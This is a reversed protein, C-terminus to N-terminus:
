EEKEVEIDFDKRDITKGDMDETVTIAKEISKSNLADLIKKKIKYDTGYVEYKLKLRQGDEANVTGSVTKGDLKYTYEAYEDATGLVIRICKKAPHNEVLDDKRKVYDDYKMKEQYVGDTVRRGTVYYGPTPAITVIVKQSGEVLEDQKLISKTDENRVTLVTHESSKAVTYKRVDVVGITIKIDKYWTKSTAIEDPEYIYVPDPNRSMDNEYRIESTTKGKKDTKDVKIRVAKGTPIARNSMTIMIGDQTGIKQDSIITQSNDIINYGSNRDKLDTIKWGGGYHSVGKKFEAAEFTFEMDEGVTRELVVSFEPKHSEDETFATDVSKGAITATQSQDSGVTYIEGSKYNNKWGEWAKIDMSIKTGSQAKYSSTTIRSGNVKYIISGGYEPQPLYVTAKVMPEFRIAKLQKVTEEKTGVVICHDGDPLWYGNDATEQEYFIKSGEALYQTNTVRSGFCTFAITGHQYSYDAPNFEYEGGKQPVVMSYKYEDGSLVESDTLILNRYKGLELWKSDTVITVTDGYKLKSIELETGAKVSQYDGGNVAVERDQDSILGVSIYEHLEVSYDVTEDTAERQKFIVEGIAIDNYFSAPASSLYFYKDNDYKYSIIYSSVPNIEASDNEVAKDNIFWDGNLAHINGENDVYHDDFSIQRKKYQGLPEVSLGKGTFQEPVHLVKGNSLYDEKSFDREVSKGDNTYEVIRFGASEYETSNIDDNILVEAFIDTGPEAYYNNQDIITKHEEDAYYTVSLNSNTAFSVHIDSNHDVVQDEEQYYGEENLKGENKYNEYKKYNEDDHLGSQQEIQDKLYQDVISIGKCGTLTISIACLTLFLEFKQKM